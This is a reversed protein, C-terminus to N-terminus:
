MYEIKRQRGRDGGGRRERKRRESERDGEGRLTTVATLLNPGGNAAASAGTRSVVVELAGTQGLTDEEVVFLDVTLLVSPCCLLLVNKGFCVDVHGPTNKDLGM